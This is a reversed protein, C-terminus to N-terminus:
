IIRSIGGESAIQKAIATVLGDAEGTIITTQDEIAQVNEIRKCKYLNSLGCRLERYEGRLCIVKILEEVFFVKTQNM